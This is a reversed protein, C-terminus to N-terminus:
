LLTKLLAVSNDWSFARATIKAEQVIDETDEKVLFELASNDADLCNIGYECFDNGGMDRTIVVCGSAMAELIPLCFGESKSLKIFFKSRKYVTALAEQPPNTITEFGDVPYTERGLWVKKGGPFLKKALAIAEPINKNPENNGEVLVDIDSEGFYYGSFREHVGNPVVVGRGWPTLAYRSVGVLGWSTDNRAEKLASHQEEPLLEVDNGQVFQLKKGKFGNFLNCQEWRVAVLTTGVDDAFRFIDSLPRHAVRYFDEIDRNGEEAYIDAEYGIKRLRSIYEFVTIIGGCTILNTSIFAIKKM